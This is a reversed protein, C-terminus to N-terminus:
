ILVVQPLGCPSGWVIGIFDIYAMSKTRYHLVSGTLAALAIEPARPFGESVPLKPVNL